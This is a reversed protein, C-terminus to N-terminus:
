DIRATPGPWDFKGAIRNWSTLRDRAGGSGNSLGGIGEGQAPAAHTRISGHVQYICTPRIMPELTLKM